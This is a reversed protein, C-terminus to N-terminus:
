AMLKIGYDAVKQTMVEVVEESLYMYPRAPLNREPRGEQQAWAYLIISADVGFTISNADTETIHGDGEGTAAAYLSGFLILLPHPGWREVTAPAHVQWSGTPGTSSEFHDIIDAAIDEECEKLVPEWDEGFSQALEEMDEIFEENTQTRM